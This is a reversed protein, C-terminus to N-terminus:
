RVQARGGGEIPVIDLPPVSGVWTARPSKQPRVSRPHRLRARPRRARRARLPAARRALRLKFLPALQRRTKGEPMQLRLVRLVIAMSIAPQLGRPAGADGGFWQRCKKTSSGSPPEHKAISGGNESVFHRVPTSPTRRLHHSTPPRGLAPPTTRESIPCLGPPKPSLKSM